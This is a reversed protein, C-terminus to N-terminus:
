KGKGSHKAQRIDHSLKNAERNIQRSEGKSIKGDNQLAKAEDEKIKELGQELNAAQESSLKGSSVGQDIRKELNAERRDIRHERGEQGHGKAPPPAPPPTDTSQAICPLVALAAVIPLLHQTKM